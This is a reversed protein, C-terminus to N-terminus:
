QITTSIRGAVEASFGYVAAPIGSAIPKGLTLM